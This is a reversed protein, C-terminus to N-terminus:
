SRCSLFKKVWGVGLAAAYAAGRVSTEVDSPRQIKVRLLDAQAQMLINNASAGGDVFVKKPYIKADHSLGEAVDAISAAIGELSARAIHAASSRRTLGGLLGKAHPAWYPSGLGSLAPIFFVGDSDEVQAAL